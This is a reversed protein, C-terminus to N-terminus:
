KNLAIAYVVAKKIKFLQEHEVSKVNGYTTIRCIRQLYLFISVKDSLFIDPLISPFKKSTVFIIDLSYNLGVFLKQGVFYKTRRFKKDLSINQGLFFKKWIKSICKAIYTVHLLFAFFICIYWGFRFNVLYSFNFLIIEM